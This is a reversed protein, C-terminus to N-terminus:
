LSTLDNKMPFIELWEGDPFTLVFRLHDTVRRARACLAGRDEHGEVDRLVDKVRWCISLILPGSLASSVSFFVGVDRSTKLPLREIVAGFIRDVFSLVQLHANHLSPSHLRQVIIIGSPRIHDDDGDDDHVDDDDDDDDDDGDDDDDDVDYKRSPNHINKDHHPNM